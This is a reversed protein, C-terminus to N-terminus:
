SGSDSRIKGDRIEIVRDAHEALSPNHTVVLITRGETKNHERLLLYIAESTATDLNGTPEDGLLIVPDNILARAIAVRQQEGGSLQGPRHHLRHSLGVRQLLMSARNRVERLPKDAILAPVMVNELATLDMMLFHFQFIFGVLRNRISALRKDEVTKSSLSTDPEGLTAGLLQITGNTPRDLAGLLYLLSSKGSGSPGTI